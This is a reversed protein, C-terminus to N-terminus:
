GPMMDMLENAVEAVQSIETSKEGGEVKMYGSRYSAVCMINFPLRLCSFRGLRTPTGHAEKMAKLLVSSSLEGSHMEVTVSSPNRLVSSRYIALTYYGGNPVPSPIARGGDQDYTLVKEPLTWRDVERYATTQYEKPTPNQVPCTCCGGLMMLAALAAVPRGRSKM